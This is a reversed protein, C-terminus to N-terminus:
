TSLFRSIMDCLINDFEAIYQINHGFDKFIIRCCMVRQSESLTAVYVLNKRDSFANM